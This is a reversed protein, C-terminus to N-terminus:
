RHGRTDLMPRDHMAENFAHLIAPAQIVRAGLPTLTMIGYDSVTPKGLFQISCASQFFGALIPLTKKGLLIEDWRETTRTGKLKQAFANIAIELKTQAEDRSAWSHYSGDPYKPWFADHDIFNRGSVMVIGHSADSTEIQKVADDFRNLISEFKGGPVKCEIAWRAGQYTILIDVKKAGPKGRKSNFPDIKLDTGVEFALLAIWLEFMKNGVESRDETNQAFKGENLHNLHETLADFNPFKYLRVFKLAFRRVTLIDRWMPRVDKTEPNKGVNRRKEPLSEVEKLIEDLESGTKVVIGLETLAGRFRGALAELEEFTSYESRSPYRRRAKTFCWILFLASTVACGAGLLKWLLKLANMGTLEAM